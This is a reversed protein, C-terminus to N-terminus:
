AHRVSKVIDLGALVHILSTNLKLLRKDIGSSEPGFSVNLDNERIQSLGVGARLIGRLFGDGDACQFVKRVSNLVGNNPSAIFKFRIEVQFWQRHIIKEGFGIKQFSDALLSIM